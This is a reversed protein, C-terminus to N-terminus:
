GELRPMDLFSAKKRAFFEDWSVAAKEKVSKAPDLHLYKFYTSISAPATVIYEFTNLM